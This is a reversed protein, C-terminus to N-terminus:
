QENESSDDSSNCSDFMDSDCEEIEECSESRNQCDSFQCLDSCKLSAKVCSCRRNQCGKTCKCHVFKLISDLAAPITMWEVAVKGQGDM